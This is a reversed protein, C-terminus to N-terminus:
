IGWPILWAQMGLAVKWGHWNQLGSVEPEQCYYDWEFSSRFFWVVGNIAQVIRSIGVSLIAKDWIAEMHVWLSAHRSIGMDYRWPWWSQLSWSINWIQDPLARHTPVGKLCDGRLQYFLVTHLYHRRGLAQSYKSNAFNSAWLYDSRWLWALSNCFFDNPHSLNALLAYM